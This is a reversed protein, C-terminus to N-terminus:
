ITGSLFISDDNMENLKRSSSPLLDGLIGTRFRLVYQYHNNKELRAKLDNQFKETTAVEDEAAGREPYHLKNYNEIYEGYMM